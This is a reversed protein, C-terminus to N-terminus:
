CINPPPHIPGSYVICRQECMQQSYVNIQSNIICQQMHGLSPKSLDTWQADFSAIPASMMLLLSESEMSQGVQFCPYAGSFLHLKRPIFLLSQLLFIYLFM